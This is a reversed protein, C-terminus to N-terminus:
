ELGVKGKSRGKHKKGREIRRKKIKNNLCTDVMFHKKYKRQSKLLIFHKNLKIFHVFFEM